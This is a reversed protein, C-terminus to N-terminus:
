KSHGGALYEVQKKKKKLLVAVPAALRRVVFVEVLGLEAVDPRVLHKAAALVRVAFRAYPVVM